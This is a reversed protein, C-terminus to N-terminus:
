SRSSAIQDFTAEALKFRLDAERKHHEPHRDPHLKARYARRAALILWDPACSSLGVRGYLAAKPDPESVSRSTRLREVEARLTEVQAEAEAVMGELAAVYHPDITNGGRSPSIAHREISVSLFWMVVIAVVILAFYAFLAAWPLSMIWGIFTFVLLVRM